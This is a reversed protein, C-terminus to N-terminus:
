NGIEGPEPRPLIKGKRGIDGQMLAPPHAKSVKKHLVWKSSCILRLLLNELLRSRERRGAREMPLQSIHMYRATCM